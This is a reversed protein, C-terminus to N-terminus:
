KYLRGVIVPAINHMPVAVVSAMRIDADVTVFDQCHFPLSNQVSAVNATYELASTAHSCSPFKAMLM